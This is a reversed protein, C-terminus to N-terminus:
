NATCTVMGGSYSSFTCSGRCPGWQGAYDCIASGYVTCSGGGTNCSVSCSRSDSHPCCVRTSSAVAHDDNCQVHGDRSVQCRRTAQCSREECHLRHGRHYYSTTCSGSCAGWAGSADCHRQGSFSCRATSDGASGNCSTTEGYECETAARGGGKPERTKKQNGERPAVPEAPPPARRREVDPPPERPDEGGDFAKAPSPASAADRSRNGGAENGCAAFLAILVICSSRCIAM